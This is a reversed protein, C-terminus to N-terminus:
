VVMCFWMIGASGVDSVRVGYCWKVIYWVFLNWFWCVVVCLMGCWGVCIGDSLVDCAGEALDDCVAVDVGVCSEM